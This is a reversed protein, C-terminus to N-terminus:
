FFIYIKESFHLFHQMKLQWLLAAKTELYYKTKMM